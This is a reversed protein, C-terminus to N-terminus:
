RSLKKKRREQEVNAARTGLSYGIMVGILLVGPIFLLHETGPM